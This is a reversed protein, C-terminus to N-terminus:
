RVNSSKHEPHTISCHEGTTLLRRGPVSNNTEKFIKIEDGCRKSQEESQEDQSLTPKLGKGVGKRWSESTQFPEMEM